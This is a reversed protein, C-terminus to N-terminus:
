AIATLPDLYNGDSDMYQLAKRHFHFGALEKPEFLQMTEMVEQPRAYGHEGLGLEMEIEPGSGNQHLELRYIANRIDVEKYGDKTARRAILSELDLTQSFKDRLAAADQFDGYVTYVARNLLASIAPAKSYIIKFDRVFFGEPLAQALREIDNNTCNDEIQIDLYESDSSYGLPLPPGFSLKQHPHFGQSYTVPIGSRRIAREFVRNNDLHSIFRVLGKKGWQLRIKGRTPAVSNNKVVVRKKRRGYMGAEDDSSKEYATAPASEITRSHAL